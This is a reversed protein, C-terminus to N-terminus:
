LWIPKWCPVGIHLQLHRFNVLEGREQACLIPLLTLSLTFMAIVRNM